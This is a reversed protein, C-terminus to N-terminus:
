RPPTPEPRRSSPLRGGCGRCRAPQATASGCNPIASPSRETADPPPGGALYRELAQRLAEAAGDYLEALRDVASGADAVARM